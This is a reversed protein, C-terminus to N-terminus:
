KLNDFGIYLKIITKYSLVCSNRWCSKWSIVQHGGPTDIAPGWIRVISGKRVLHKMCSDGCTAM